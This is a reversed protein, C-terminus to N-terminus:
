QRSVQLRPKGDQEVLDFSVDNGGGTFYEHREDVSAQSWGAATLCVGVETSLTSWDADYFCEVYQGSHDTKVECSSTYGPIPRIPESITQAAVAAEYATIMACADDSQPWIATLPTPEVPTAGAHQPECIGDMSYRACEDRSAACTKVIQEADGAQLRESFCWVERPSVCPGTVLPSQAANAECASASPECHARIELNSSYSFCEWGPVVPRAPEPGQKGPCGALAVLL